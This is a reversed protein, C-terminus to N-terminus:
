CLRPLPNPLATLNTPGYPMLESKPHRRPALLDRGTEVVTLCRDPLSATTAALARVGQRYRRLVLETLLRHAGLVPAVTAAGAAAARDAVERSFLGPSLLYPAVCVRRAGCHRLYDVTASVDPGPGSLCAYDVWPGWESRLLKAARDVDAFAAIDTSGAAVLVVGDGWRAGAERLRATMARALRRDPGLPRTVHVPVGALAVAAPVDNGVHYGTSLLLPVVVAPGTLGSMVEDVAPPVLEVWAGVV